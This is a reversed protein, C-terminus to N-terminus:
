FGMVRRLGLMETKGINLGWDPLYRLLGWERGYGRRWRRRADEGRGAGRREEEEGSSSAIAPPERQLVVDLAM